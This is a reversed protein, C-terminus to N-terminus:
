GMRKLIKLHEIAQLAAMVFRREGFHIREVDGQLEGFDSVGDEVMLVVPKQLALAAGKEELLWPSTTFTGDAKLQDRTMLCLFFDAEGIRQLIVRSISGATDLGTLVEFGHQNLLATLGVALDKDAFCHSLFVRRLRQNAVSEVRFRVRPRSPRRQRQNQDRIM